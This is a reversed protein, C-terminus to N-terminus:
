VGVRNTDIILEGTQVGVEFANSSRVLALHPLMIVEDIIGGIGYMEIDSTNLSMGLDKLIDQKKFKRM